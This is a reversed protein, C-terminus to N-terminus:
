NRRSWALSLVVLLAILGVGLLVENIAIPVALAAAYLGTMALMAANECFNQIALARGVGVTLQGRAQLLANLPVVFFGGMFGIVVMEVFALSEQHIFVLALVSPGLLLGPIFVRHITTLKVRFGAVLAGLVIGMSVVGMLTAPLENSNNHLVVPVWAFLVLRLVAGVAWFLSTGCLSFRGDRDAFLTKINVLFLKILALMSHGRWSARPSLCPIVLNSLMAGGYVSAILCMLALLSRDAMVGGIVVGLIIAVITSSELLGNGKVLWKVPLLDILLGYKAPGYGAAGIGALFYALVPNVGSLLCIAGVLKLGNTVLMVRSKPFSDALQGVFPALVIYAIFFVAALLAQEIGSAAGRKLLALAAVFFMNDALASLFQASLLGALPVSWLQDHVVLKSKDM